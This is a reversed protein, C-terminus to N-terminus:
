KRVYVRNLHFFLKGEDGVDDLFLLSLSVPIHGLAVVLEPTHTLIRNVQEMALDIWRSSRKLFSRSLTTERFSSRFCTRYLADDSKLSQDEEALTLHM